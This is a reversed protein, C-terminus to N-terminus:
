LRELTFKGLDDRVRLGVAELHAEYNRISARIESGSSYLDDILLETLKRPKHLRILLLAYRPSVTVNGLPGYVAFRRMDVSAVLHPMDNPEDRVLFQRDDEAGDLSLRPVRPLDRPDGVPRPRIM